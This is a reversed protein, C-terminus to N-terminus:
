EAPEYSVEFTKKSIAYADTGDANNSVLYDGQQYESSGEKTAVKGCDDAIEAWIIQTKQYLGPSIQTYTQQFSDKDITYCDEGNSVLWDGAKCSQTGGWKHYQFGVTDLDLQVATILSNERKRYKKRMGSTM